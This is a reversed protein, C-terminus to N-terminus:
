AAHESVSLLIGMMLLTSLLSSGGSSIFPLPIGKNPLIGLVVSMNILAQVVVCVTVALALYRGFNDNTRVFTRLGRWLVVAFGVILLGAGFLGTEEGVVGYIFDTHAEPLYLLKQKSQMLGVGVLGGTGVAIKSQLQQYGPDSTSATRHAYKLINGSPDFKALLKHDKDVFEIARMLRYPKMAVFGVGLLAGLLACMALYKRDIGAVFMVALTMAVLVVATGFDAVAVALAVVTVAVAIPGLTHRENITELRHCLFYALFLALAPKAMESPQLSFPGAKLWRHSASDTVYVAVLLLMVTGLCAFAVKPNNWQRYDHRMCYLLILFSFIAWGLQRVFFHTSSVHYKLEAIFSSASYVMVLGFCVLTLVTLFLIWDTKLRQAM